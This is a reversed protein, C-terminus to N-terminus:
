GIDGHPVGENCGFFCLPPAISNFLEYYDEYLICDKIEEEANEWEEELEELKQLITEKPFEAWIEKNNKERVICRAHDSFCNFLYDLDGSCNAITTGMFEPKLM